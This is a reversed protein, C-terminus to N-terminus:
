QQDQAPARDTNLLRRLKKQHPGKIGCDNMQEDTMDKVDPVSDYGGLFLKQACGSLQSRLLFEWLKKREAMEQIALEEVGSRKMEEETLDM